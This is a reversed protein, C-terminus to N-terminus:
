NNRDEDQQSVKEGNEKALREKQKNLSTADSSSRVLSDLHGEIEEVLHRSLSNSSEAAPFNHPLM